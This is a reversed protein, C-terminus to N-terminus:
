SSSSKASQRQKAKWFTHWFSLVIYMLRSWYILIAAQMLSVIWLERQVARYFLFFMVVFGVIAVVSSFIVGFLWNKPLEPENWGRWFFSTDFIM